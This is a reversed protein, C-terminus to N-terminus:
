YVSLLQNPPTFSTTYKDIGGYVRIDNMFGNWYFTVNDGPGNRGINLALDPLAQANTGTTSQLVGNVFFRMFGASNRCWAIHYWTQESIISDGPFYVNGVQHYFKYGNDNTVGVVFRSSSTSIYQSFVIRTTNFSGSAAYVWAEFTFAANAASYRFNNPTSFFSTSGNFYLSQGYYKSQASSLTVATNTVTPLPTIIRSGISSAVPSTGNSGAGTISFLHYDEALNSSSPWNNQKAQTFVTM